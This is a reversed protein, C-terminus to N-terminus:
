RNNLRQLDEVWRLTIARIWEADVPADFQSFVSLQLTKGRVLMLTNSSLLFQPKEEPGFLSRKQQPQLRTGQLYSFLGPEKRLEELLVAVAPNQSTLYTTWNADRPAPTGLERMSDDIARQFTAPTTRERELGKPTVVMMYRRFDPTDGVTFRRLDADSIAFLLIKNSASTLMEALEQLRPSGTFTTDAYGPPADLAIRTEGVQVAFPAALAHSAAFAFAALLSRVTRM